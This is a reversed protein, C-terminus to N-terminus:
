YEELQKEPTEEIGQTRQVTGEAPCSARCSAPSRLIKPISSIERFILLSNKYKKKNKPSKKRADDSMM